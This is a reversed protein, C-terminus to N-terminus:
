NSFVSIACWGGVVFGAFSTIAAAVAAIRFGEGWWNRHVPRVEMFLVQTLYAFAASLVGAGVGLTHWMFSPALESTFSQAITSTGDGAWLHGLLTLLSIVAAGNVLILSKIALTAFTIIGKFMEVDVANQATAQVEWVRMKQDSIQPSQNAM